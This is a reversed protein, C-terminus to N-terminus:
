GPAPKPWNTTMVQLPTQSLSGQFTVTYIDNNGKGGGKVPTNAVKVFGGVGGINSFANLANQIETAINQRDLTTISGGPGTHFYTLTPTTDTVVAGTSDAGTFSITFTDAQFPFGSFTLTQVEDRGASGDGDAVYLNGGSIVIRSIGKGFFPNIPTGP